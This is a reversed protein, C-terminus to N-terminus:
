RRRRRARPASKSSGRADQRVHTRATGSANRIAASPRANRAEARRPVIVPQRSELARKLVVASNRDADHASFVLTVTEKRGMQALARVKKAAPAAKLEARYRRQFEDWRAPDHAYWKRLEGSPAVDKSWEAIGLQDKRVGRPWLREVLIRYGDARGAPEYARKLRFAM